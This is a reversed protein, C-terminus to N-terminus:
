ATGWGFAKGDGDGDAQFTLEETEIDEIGGTANDSEVVFWGRFTEVDGGPRIEILVPENTQWLDRFMGSFDDFRRITVNVDKVGHVRVRYGGNTRATEFDTRDLLSTSANIAYSNAGAVSITPIYSGSVTVPDTVPGAFTVEGFLYNISVIESDPIAIGNEEFTPVVDRDWIRKTPDVIQYTNTDVLQMAQDTFPTSSGGKKVIAKFGPSAM